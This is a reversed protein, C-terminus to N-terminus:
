IYKIRKLIVNRNLMTNELGFISAIMVLIWQSKQIGSDDSPVESRDSHNSQSISDMDVVGEDEADGLGLLPQLFLSHNSVLM